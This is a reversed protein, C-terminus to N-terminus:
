PKPNPDHNPYPSPNYVECTFDAMLVQRRDPVSVFKVLIHNGDGGSAQADSTVRCWENPRCERLWSNNLQGHLSLGFSGSAPPVSGMFKIWGSVRLWQNAPFPKRWGVWRGATIKGGQHDYVLVHTGPPPGEGDGAVSGHLADRVQFGGSGMAGVATGWTSADIRGYHLLPLTQLAVGLSVKSGAQLASEAVSLSIPIVERLPAAEPDDITWRLHQLNHQFEGTVSHLLRHIMASIPEQAWVTATVKTCTPPKELEITITFGEEYKLFLQAGDEVGHEAFTELNTIETGGFLLQSLTPPPVELQLIEPPDEHLRLKLLLAKENRAVTIPITEDGVIVNITCTEGAAQMNSQAKTLEAQLREIERQLTEASLIDLIDEPVDLGYLAKLRAVKSPTAIKDDEQSQQCGM